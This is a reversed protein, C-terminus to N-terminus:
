LLNKLLSTLVAIKEASSVSGSFEELISEVNNKLLSATGEIIMETELLGSFDNNTYKIEVSESLREKFKQLGSILADRKDNDWDEIYQGTTIKSLKEIAENDDYSFELTILNFISREQLELILKYQTKVYESLFSNFGMKMSTDFDIGFLKKVDYILNQKFGDILIEKNEVYESITEYIDQYKKTNFIKQPKEYVVEFPNLNFSLFLGKYELFSEELGIYNNNVTAIRIIQPLRIFFKKITHALRMTDNRFSNVTELGFLKLMKSLYKNQEVSSKSLMIDYKENQSAKVLNTSNLEIEKSQYYLIINDTLESIAKTLILPVVGKRIGYPALTYPELLCQISLKNGAKEIVEKKIEEVIKRFTEASKSGIHLADNNDLIARRVSMEPSTESFIFEKSGKLLWDIVNNIAKQYQTTVDKKNILENNFIIKETYISEMVKSLLSNFTKEENPVVSYYKSENNFYSNILAKIDNETEEILLDIESLTIEDIGKQNKVDKLCTHRTISDYFVRDIKQSPFKIIVRSDQYNDIAAKIENETMEDILLYIVLGDCYDHEFYYNFSTKSIFEKETLFLIRFFRIIKNEENYRRPLLYNREIIGNIMEDHKINKFKTKKSIEVADDIQKTSSLAFSLLSNLINKRIFHNDILNNVVKATTQINLGSALSLIFESSPLKDSDNIMLIIALSKIVSREEINDIKSLLSETRYWINRIYNTEEKQLLGSFYDYIKDVNFLGSDNRNIFSNFSDDDTDSLFTFLTRENQAVYESIQILSYATLPNLPFCGRFLTNEVINGDFLSLSLINKYFEENSKIYADIIKDSDKKKIITSSIIQYNEELSRNFRIEKFRGEVTKFSDLGINGKKNSEYLTLSKHTVCCLNIQHKQSSRTAVEAFDQIIKLDRTVNFSSSELFKSFEDFIILMGSYNFSSLSSSVGSYLKVIDNNVLPNFELGINVCNYLREFQKYADPSYLCLGERLKDLNVGNVELCKSVIEDRSSEKSSWKDLLSICLDFTSLPVISDLGERHLSENLAIQFSQTINDYNSNIIVPLLSIDKDKMQLLLNGLEKDVNHIKQQLSNWAKTNKNKGCLYTLVLLLFSKGKGYPGILTTARSKNVGIFSSIYKKIVDCIDATPIYEELKAENNLDLELNISSQFNKNISIYKSYM